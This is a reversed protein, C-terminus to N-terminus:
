SPIGSRLRSSQRDFAAPLFLTILSLLIVATVLNSLMQQPLAAVLLWLVAPSDALSALMFGSVVSQILTGALILLVLLPPSEVNLKEAVLRISIMLILYICIHLGITLGSMSDKAAGLLLAAVLAPLSKERVALLIVLILMLDPRWSVSLLRPLVSSQLLLFFVATLYVFIYRSM